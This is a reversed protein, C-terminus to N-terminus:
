VLLFDLTLSTMLSSPIPRSVQSDNWHLVLRYGVLLDEKANVDNLAMIAAPLCGRGGQWGGTGRIPFLGGIYLNILQPRDQLTEHHPSYSLGRNPVLSWCYHVVSLTLVLAFVIQKM